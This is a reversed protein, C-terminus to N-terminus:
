LLNPKRVLGKVWHGKPELGHQPERPQHQTGGHQPEEQARSSLLGVRMKGPRPIAMDLRLEKRTVYLPFIYIHTHTLVLGGASRVPKPGHKWKGPSWKPYMNKVWLWILSGQCAANRLRATKNGASWGLRCKDFCACPKGSLAAVASHAGVLLM